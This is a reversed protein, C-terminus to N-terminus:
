GEIVARDGEALTGGQIVFVDLGLRGDHKDRLETLVSLDRKNTDPDYVIMICRERLTRVGLLVEGIRIRKGEWTREELGPSGGLVLNPRLRRGDHGFTAIAGDTTVLLPLMDYRRVPELRVLKAGDDRLSARLLAGVEESAWPRGDVLPEGDPGLVSRRELLQPRVRATVIKGRSGVVGVLRDGVLGTPGLEARALREGGMSKVPFRWLESVFLDGLAITGECSRASEHM